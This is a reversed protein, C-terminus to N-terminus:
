VSDSFRLPPSVSLPPAGIGGNVSEGNGKRLEGIGRNGTETKMFRHSVPLM